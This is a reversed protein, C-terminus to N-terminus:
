LITLNINRLKQMVRNLNAFFCACKYKNARDKIDFVADREKDDRLIMEKSIKKDSSVVGENDNFCCINNNKTSFVTEYDYHLKLKKGPYENTSTEEEKEKSIKNNCNWYQSEDQTTHKRKLLDGCRGPAAFHCEEYGDGPTNCCRDILCHHEGKEDETEKNSFHQFYRCKNKDYKRCNSELPFVFASAKNSFIKTSDCYSDKTEETLLFTTPKSSSSTSSNTVYRAKRNSPFKLEKENIDLKKM